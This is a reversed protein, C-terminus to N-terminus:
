KGWIEGIINALDQSRKVMLDPRAVESMNEM